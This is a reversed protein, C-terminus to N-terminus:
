IQSTYNNTFVLTFFIRIDKKNKKSGQLWSHARIDIKIFIFIFLVSIYVNKIVDWFLHFHLQKQLKSLPEYAM